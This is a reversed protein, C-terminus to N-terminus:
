VNLIFIIYQQEWSCWECRSESGNRLDERGLLTYTLLFFHWQRCKRRIFTTVFTGSFFFVEDRSQCESRLSHTEKVGMNNWYVSANVRQLRRSAGLLWRRANAVGGAGGVVETALSVAQQRTVASQFGPFSFSRDPAAGLFHCVCMWAVCEVLQESKGDSLPWMVATRGRTMQSNPTMVTQTHTDCVCVWLYMKRGKKHSKVWNPRVGRIGTTIKKKKEEINWIFIAKKSCTKDQIIRYCTETPNLLPNAINHGLLGAKTHNQLSVKKRLIHSVTLGTRAKYQLNSAKKWHPPPFFLKQVSKFQM